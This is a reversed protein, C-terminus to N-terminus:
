SRRRLIGREMAANGGVSGAGFIRATGTRDRRRGKRVARLDGFGNELLIAATRGGKSKRSVVSIAVVTRM